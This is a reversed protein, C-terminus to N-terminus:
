KQCLFSWTPIHFHLFRALSYIYHMCLVAAQPPLPNHHHSHDVASCATSFHHLLFPNPKERGATTLTPVVCDRWEPSSLLSYWLPPSPFPWAKRHRRHDTHNSQLREMRTQQVLLTSSIPWAKRQKSYDIHNGHVREATSQQVLLPFTTFSHTCAKRQISYDAHNDHVKWALSSLLHHWLPQSPIPAPKERHATTPM